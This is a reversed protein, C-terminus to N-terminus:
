AKAILDTARTQKYSPYTSILITRGNGATLRLGKRRMVDRSITEVPRIKDGKEGRMIPGSWRTGNREHANSVVPFFHVQDHCPYSQEHPKKKRSASQKAM